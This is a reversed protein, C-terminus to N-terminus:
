HSVNVALFAEALFLAQLCATLDFEPTLGSAADVAQGFAEGRELARVFASGGVPLATVNITLHPRVVLAEEGHDLELQAADDDSMHRRWISVIPYQSAVVHTSPHLEATAGALRDFPLARLADMSLPAANEAHYSQGVAYELQAVDALYPVERAPEFSSVFDAFDNGYDFLMPTRPLLDRVYCRAMARFFEDGVLQRCVPFREALADVLGVCVNNRYVAFRREPQLGRRAELGNPTPLEPDLLARVFAGQDFDVSATM